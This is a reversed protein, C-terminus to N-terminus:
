EYNVYFNFEREKFNKKYKYIEGLSKNKRIKNKLVINEDMVKRFLSNIRIDKQMINKIGAMRKEEALQRINRSNKMKRQLQIEEKKKHIINRNKEISNYIFDKYKIFECINEYLKLLRLTYENITPTNLNKINKQNLKLIKNM